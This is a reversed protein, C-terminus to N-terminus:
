NESFSLGKINCHSTQSLDSNPRLPNFTSRKIKDAYIVIELIWLVVSPPKINDTNKTVIQLRKSPIQNKKKLEEFNLCWSHSGRAIHRSQNGQGNLRM